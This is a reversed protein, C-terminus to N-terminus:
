HNPRLASTTQTDGQASVCPLTPQHPTPPFIQTMNKGRFPFALGAPAWRRFLWEERRRITRRGWRLERWSVHAYSWRSLHHIRPHFYFQSAEVTIELFKFMGKDSDLCLASFGEEQRQSGQMQRSGRSRLLFSQSLDERTSSPFGPCCSGSEFRDLVGM